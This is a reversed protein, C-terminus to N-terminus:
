SKSYIRAIILEYQAILRNTKAEHLEDLTKDKRHLSEIRKTKYPISEKYYKSDTKATDKDLYSNYGEFLLGLTGCLIQGFNASYSGDTAAKASMDIVFGGVQFSFAEKVSFTFQTKAENYLHAAYGVVFSSLAFTTSADSLYFRIMEDNIELPNTALAASAAFYSATKFADQYNTKKPALFEEYEHITDTLEQIKTTVKNKSEIYTEKIASYQVTLELLLAMDLSNISKTDIDPASVSEGNSDISEDIREILKELDARTLM